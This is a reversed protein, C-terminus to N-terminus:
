LLAMVRDDIPGYSGDSLRQEVAVWQSRPVPGLTMYWHKAADLGGGTKIYSDKFVPHIPQTKVWTLWHEARARVTIRVARKDVSSGDLGHPQAASPIDLFWLGPVGDVLSDTPRLEGSQLIAPLHHLSTFHYLTRLAQRERKARSAKGM